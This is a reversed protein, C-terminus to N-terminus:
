NKEKRSRGNRFSERKGFIKLLKGKDEKKLLKIAIAAQEHYGRWLVKAIIKILYEEGGEEQSIEKEWM